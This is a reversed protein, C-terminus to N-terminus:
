SVPVAAVSKEGLLLVQDARHDLPLQHTVVVVTREPAVLGSDADLLARLLDAGQADDLHETPEDLLLVEFPSLLARALLIRRRQGGSVAAAGGALRTHVGQPLGSLWEDLGVAVLATEAETVTVDGRAVRLNELVTTGFLHADEAFFGVGPTPQDALLGAWHMLLTTKGSGSPGVVAVRRGEPRETVSSQPGRVPRGPHVPRLLSGRARNLAVAAAPLAAVAEFAALPLLVLVAFTPASPTAAIGVLLSGLVAAGISLPLAAAAWAGPAAARD